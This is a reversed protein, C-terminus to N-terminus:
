IELYQFLRTKPKNKIIAFISITTLIAMITIIAIQSQPILTIIKIADENPSQKGFNFLIISLISIVFAMASIGIILESVYWIAFLIKRFAIAIILPFIMGSMGIIAMSSKSICSMDCLVNPLPFLHFELVKGGCLITALSHGTEHLFPYIVIATALGLFLLLM